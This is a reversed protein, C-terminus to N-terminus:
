LGQQDFIKLMTTRRYHTKRVDAIARSLALSAPNIKKARTFFGAAEKYASKDAPGGAAATGLRILLAMAKDPDNREFYGPVADSIWTPEGTSVLEWLAETDKEHM